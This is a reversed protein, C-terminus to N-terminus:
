LPPGGAAHIAAHLAAAMEARVRALEPLHRNALREADQELEIAAIWAIARLRGLAGAAGVHATAIAGCKPCWTPAHIEVHELCPAPSM